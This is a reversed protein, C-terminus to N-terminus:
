HGGCRADHWGVWYAGDPGHERKWIPVHTKISDILARCAAFAESRHTASVACAVAADGVGLSGIRHEVWVRHVGFRLLIEEAIRNMERIAMSPYAEYELLTVVRGENHNRVIGVFLDIAGSENAAVFALASSVELATDSLRVHVRSM